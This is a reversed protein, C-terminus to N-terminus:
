NTRRVNYVINLNSWTIYIQSNGNTEIRLRVNCKLGEEDIAEFKVNKGGSGDTYNSIHKTIKYHQPKPSRISIEDSNLNMTMTMDSKEWNSWEGWQGQSNTKQYAYGTTRYTYVQADAVQPVLVSLTFILALISLIRKM